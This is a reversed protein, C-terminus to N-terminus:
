EQSDIGAPRGVLEDFDTQTVTFSVSAVGPIGDETSVNSLSGFFRRGTYDRYCVIDAEWAMREWDDRPSDFECDDGRIPGCEEDYWLTGSASVVRDVNEGVLLTPLKRGIFHQVGRNRGSVASTRPNGRFRLVNQFGPGYAMFIWLNDRDDNDGIVYIVPSISASGSYAYTIARYQNIETTGPIVDLVVTPQSIVGAYDSMVGAYVVVHDIWLSQGAAPATNKFGVSLPIGRGYFNVAYTAWGTTFSIPTGPQGGALPDFVYSGGATAKARFVMTYVQDNTLTLPVYVGQPRSPGSPNAWGIHLSKSGHDADVSQEVVTPLDFYGYVSNGAWGGLTDEFSETYSVPAQNNVFLQEAITVWDDDGVRRQLVVHDIPETVGPVPEEGSLYLTTTGVCSNYDGTMVVDAPPLLDVVTDLTATATLGDSSTVTVVIRYTIGDEFPHSVEAEAVSGTGSVTELISAGGSSLVEVKWSTQAHGQAQSYTWQVVLPLSEIALTPNTITVAPSDTGIITASSSWPGFAALDSGQTQVQWLYTSGNAITGAPIVYESVTSAVNTALPVWTSGGDSSYSVSFHSQKSNDTDPNHKWTLVTDLTFDRKLGNPSLLTPALPPVASTISNSEVYASSLGSRTSRIRYTNNSAGPSGDTWQDVNFALGGAVTTWPGGGVSRQIELVVGADVYHKNAWTVDIQNGAASASASVNTPAAPTM